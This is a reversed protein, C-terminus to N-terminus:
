SDTPRADPLLLGAIEDGTLRGQKLLADAVRSIAAWRAVVLADAAARAVTIDVGKAAMAYLQEADSSDGVGGTGAVDILDASTVPGTLHLLHGIAAMGAWAAAPQPGDALFDVAGRDDPTLEVRTVRQGLTLYAVAHGAEHVAICRRTDLHPLLLVRCGATRCDRCDFTEAAWLRTDLIQRQHQGCVFDILRPTV